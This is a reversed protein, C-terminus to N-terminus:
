INVFLIYLKLIVYSHCDFSLSVMQIVYGHIFVNKTSPPSWDRLDLNVSEAATAFTGESSVSENDSLLSRNHSLRDSLEFSDKNESFSNNNLWQSVKVEDKCGVGVPDVDDTTAVKYNSGFVNGRETLLVDEPKADVSDTQSQPPPSAVSLKSFLQGLQGVPSLPIDTLNQPDSTASRYSNDDSSGAHQSSQKRVPTSTASLVNSNTNLDLFIIYM